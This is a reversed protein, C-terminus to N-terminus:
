TYRVSSRVLSLGPCSGSLGNDDTNPLLLHKTLCPSELDVMSVNSADKSSSGERGTIGNGEEVQCTVLDCRAPSLDFTTNGRVALNSATPSSVNTEIGSFGNTGEKEPQLPSPTRDAPSHLSSQLRARSLHTAESAIEVPRALSPNTQARSWDNLSHRAVSGNSIKRQISAKKHWCILAGRMISTLLLNELIASALCRGISALVARHWSLLAKRICAIFNRLLARDSAAVLMTRRHWGRLVKIQIWPSCLPVYCSHCFILLVSFELM